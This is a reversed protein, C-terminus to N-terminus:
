FSLALVQFIVILLRHSTYGEFGKVINGHDTEELYEFEAEAIEQEVRDLKAQFSLSLNPSHSM